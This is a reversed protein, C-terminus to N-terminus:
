WPGTTSRVDAPTDSKATPKARAAAGLVSVVADAALRHWRRFFRLVAPTLASTTCSDTSTQHQPDSGA